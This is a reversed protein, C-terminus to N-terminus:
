AHCGLGKLAFGKSSLRLSELRVRELRSRGFRLWSDYEASSVGDNVLPGSKLVCDVPMRDVPIRAVRIREVRITTFLLGGGPISFSGAPHDFTPCFDKSFSALFGPM